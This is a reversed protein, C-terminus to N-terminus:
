DCTKKCAEDCAPEMKKAVAAQAIALKQHVEAFLASNSMLKTQVAMLESEQPYSHHHHHELKTAGVLLLAASLGIFKM